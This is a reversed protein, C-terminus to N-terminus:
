FGVKGGRDPNYEKSDLNEVLKKIEEISEDFDNKMLIVSIILEKLHAFTFKETKEVWRDLDIVKLDKKKVKHELYFKRDIASPLDVLYKKDFRSPRNKIRDPLKDLYNTTGITINKDYQNVGDLIQLLTSEGGKDGHNLYGDIDEVITIIPTGPEIAKFIGKIFEPYYELEERGDISLLIGKQNEILDRVLLQILSSKGSGPPGYLLIGRKHIFSYEKYSDYIEWFQSVDKIIKGFKENPITLLEDTKLEINKLYFSSRDQDYRIKYYGPPVKDCLKYPKKYPYFNGDLTLSWQNWEENIKPENEDFEELRKNVSTMDLFGILGKNKNGM